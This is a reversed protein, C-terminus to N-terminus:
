TWRQLTKGEPSLLSVHDKESIYYIRPYWKQQDMYQRAANMAAKRGKTTAILYDRENDSVHYGDPRRPEILIAHFLDEEMEQRTM